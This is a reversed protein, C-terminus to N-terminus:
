FAEDPMPDDIPQTPLPLSAALGAPTTPLTSASAVAAPDEAIWRWPWRRAAFRRTAFAGAIVRRAAAEPDAETLCWRAVTEVHGAASSAGLWADGTAREYADRYHRLLTGM